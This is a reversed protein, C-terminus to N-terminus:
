GDRTRFRSPRRKKRSRALHIWLAMLLSFTLLCAWKILSKDVNREVLQAFVGITAFSCWFLSRPPFEPLPTLLISKKPIIPGLIEGWRERDVNALIKAAGDDLDKGFTWNEAWTSKKPLLGAFIEMAGIESRGRSNAEIKARELARKTAPAFRKESTALESDQSIQSKAETKLTEIELGLKELQSVVKSDNLVGLLLHLTSIRGCFSARMERYASEIANQAAPALNELPHPSVPM